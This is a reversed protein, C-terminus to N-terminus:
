NNLSTLLLISLVLFLISLVYNINRAIFQVKNVILKAFEIYIAFLAFTGLFVGLVFFSIYPQTMMILGKDHLLSSFFFYYQIALMNISSLFMGILFFNGERKTGEAKIKKRAQIFFFVSLSLLVILGAIKFRELIEPNKAFYKAFTLAILSQPIVIIAAGLAFLFAAKKNKEIRMRLSTMNLMGPPMVGIFAMLFGFFLHTVFQM